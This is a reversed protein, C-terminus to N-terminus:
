ECRRVSGCERGGSLFEMLGHLNYSDSGAIIRGDKFKMWTMGSFQVRQRTPALDLFPGEHTASATWRIAAEDDEAIVGELTLRVDPFARILPEYVMARFEAPGKIEGGESVGIARADMM